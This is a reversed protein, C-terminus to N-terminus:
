RCMRERPRLRERAHEREREKGRITHTNCSPFNEAFLPDEVHLVHPAPVKASTVPRVAQLMHRAPVNEVDRPDVWFLLQMRHGWSEYEDPLPAGDKAFQVMQGAFEVETGSCFIDM